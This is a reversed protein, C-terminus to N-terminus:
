EGLIRGEQKLQTIMEHLIGNIFSTSNPASYYRALNLYENITVRTSIAPYGIAETLALQLIIYDIESVRDRDWNKFYRSIIDRYEEKHEIAKTLLGPGFAEDEESTYQPKIQSGYSKDASVSNYVKPVFTFVVDIDDNLYPSSNEICQRFYESSAIHKRYINRWVDRVGCLDTSEPLPEKRVEGLVAIVVQALCESMDDRVVECQSFLEVFEEDAEIHQVFANDSLLRLLAVADPDPAIKTLERELRQRAVQAFRLPLGSMHVYLRYSKDLALRLVSLAQPVTM